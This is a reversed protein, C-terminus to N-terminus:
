MAEKELNIVEMLDAELVDVLLQGALHGGRIKTKTRRLEQFNEIRLRASEIGLAQDEKSLRKLIEQQWKVIFKKADDIDKNQKDGLTRKQRVTGNPEVELAYYPKDPEDAKRLWFLYSEKRNIRDFYRDDRDFCLRLINGEQLIDEIKEPVIVKYKKTEFEYKKKISELISDVNPYKIAIEGAQLTLEKNGCMGVVLNHAEVLNKPKFIIESSINMKLRSAMRLYDDWTSILEKPKRKSIEYQKKIYNCIKTESMHNIIFNLDTPTIKEKEFYKIVDNSIEKNCGKEYKLWDLTIIGGNMDRLRKLRYKDIMLTKAFDSSEKIGTLKSGTLLEMALKGLGSKIIKEMYPKDKIIEVFAEPDMKNVNRLYEIMGTHKIPEIFHLTRKYVIGAVTGWGYLANAYTVGTGIWRMDINKYLGYYFAEGHLYNNYFIRRIEKVNLKVKSRDERKFEKSALFQRIVFGTECKQIIWCDYGKTRVILGAKKNSKYTINKGCCSCKENTNHKPNSIKVTKECWTCYGEKAGSKIYDYFIYDEPIGTKEIWHNWEKPLDPVQEQMQDWPDTERRHRCKLQESRVNLQYDIAGKFGGNEVSLYSKITRNTDRNSYVGSHYKYEPWDLMDLKAERWIQKEVDLTIFEGSDRNVFLEYRPRIEGSRMENALFFAIKLYGGLQQARMYIGYKYYDTTRNGYGYRKSQPRDMSAIRMMAPTANLKRLKKLDEKRM